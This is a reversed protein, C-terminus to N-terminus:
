YSVFKRLLDLEAQSIQGDSIIQKIKDTFTIFSEFGVNKVTGLQDFYNNVIIKFEDLNTNSILGTVMGLIDERLYPLVVSRLHTFFIENLIPINALLFGLMPKMFYIGVASIFLIAFLSVSCGLVLMSKLKKRANQDSKMLYLLDSFIHKM